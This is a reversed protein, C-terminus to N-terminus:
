EDVQECDVPEFVVGLEQEEEPAPKELRKEADKAQMEFRTYLIVGTMSIALGAIKKLLRGTTDEKEPFLILGCVFILITKVHGVVQFTVPGARGILSFAIVNGFLAFVGSLLVLFVQMFHFTQEFISNQGITEM